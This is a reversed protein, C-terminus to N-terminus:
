DILGVEVIMVISVTEAAWLSADLPLLNLAELSTAAVMAPPM